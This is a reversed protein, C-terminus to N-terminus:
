FCGDGYYKNAYIMEPKITIPLYSHNIPYECVIGIYQDVSTSKAECTESVHKKAKLVKCYRVELYYLVVKNVM